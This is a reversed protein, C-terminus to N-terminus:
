SKRSKRTDFVRPHFYDFVRHHFYRGFFQWHYMAPM